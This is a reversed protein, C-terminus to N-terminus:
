FSDLRINVREHSLEEQTEQSCLLKELTGYIAISSSLEKWVLVADETLQPEM